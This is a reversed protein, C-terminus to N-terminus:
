HQLSRSNVKAGDKTVPQQDVFDELSKLLGRLHAEGVARVDESRAKPADRRGFTQIASRIVFAESEAPSDWSSIVGAAELLQGQAERDQVSIAARVFDTQGPFREDVKKMVARVARQLSSFGPDRSAEVEAMSQGPALGHPDSYKKVSFDRQETRKNIALGHEKLEHVAYNLHETQGRYSGAGNSVMMVRGNRVTIEGAALFQPETRYVARLFRTIGEHSGIFSTEPANLDVPGPDLARPMLVLHKESDIAYVYNGNSLHVLRHSVNGNLEVVNTARLLRGVDLVKKELPITESRVLVTPLAQQLGDGIAAFDVSCPTESIATASHVSSFGAHAVSFFAISAIATALSCRSTSIPKSVVRSDM